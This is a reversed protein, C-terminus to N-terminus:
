SKKHDEYYDGKNETTRVAYYFIMQIEKSSLAFLFLIVYDIIQMNSCM